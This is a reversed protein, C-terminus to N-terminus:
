KKGRSLTTGKRLGPKGLSEKAYRDLESKVFTWHGLVKKADIKGNRVQVSLTIPSIDAGHTKKFYAVAEALTYRRQLETM